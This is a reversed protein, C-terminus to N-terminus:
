DPIEVVVEISSTVSESEATIRATGNSVATVLGTSSVTAVTPNSSSWTVPAVPIPANGSDYVEAELQVNEGLQALTVSTPAIAVSVAVQTVQVNAVASVGGSTAEIQVIGGSVVTVLGSSSVSAVAPNSSSWAVTSGTLVNNDQDLVTANIQLTQGIATIIVSDSSLVISSSVRAPETPSDKGCAALTAVILIVVYRTFLLGYRKM